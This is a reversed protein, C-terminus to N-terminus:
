KVSYRGDEMRTSFAKRCKELNQQQQAQANTQVENQAEVNAKKQQRRGHVAGLTAGIAAGKSTDGAIAGVATGAVAGRATGKVGSGKQTQPASVQLQATPDIGIEDKALKSCETEDKSQQAENQNNKPFVYIGLASAPSKQGSTSTSLTQGLDPIPLLLLGFGVSFVVVILV